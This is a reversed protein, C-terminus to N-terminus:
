ADKRVEAMFWRSYCEAFEPLAECQGHHALLRPYRAEDDFIRVSECLFTTMSAVTIDAQTLRDEILWGSPGRRESAQELMGLAGHMQERCRAVWPEHFKEPPRVMREYIVERAKEAAAIALSMMRLAERRSTGTAPLLARTPGALDDLADLIAASEVLPTGDELVLVPVRGLPSYERIRDFDAGVSWNRHEFPLGLRRMSIAVRRVYPSDFMGILLM